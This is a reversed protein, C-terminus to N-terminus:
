RVGPNVIINDILRTRGAFGAIAIVTRGTISKVPKFTKVDAFLIYDLKMGKFEGFKSRMRREIAACRIIGYRIAKEGTKLASILSLANNRLENSLYVNRSSLALGDRERVTPCIEVKVPMNLDKVMKKIVLAQQIDKQGLYLIDTRVTNLLKLVITTVGNFHTPRSVGEGIKTISGVSVYTDFGDPYMESNNPLFVTDVGRERLLKLDRKLDRPYRALDENPAFQMPNVYVSVVTHDCNKLSRDVLSLHGEHLYGMTPVFGIKIGDSAVKRLYSQISKIKKYIKM